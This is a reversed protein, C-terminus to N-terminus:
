LASSSCESRFLTERRGDSVRMSYDTRVVKATAVDDLYLLAASEWPRYICHSIPSKCARPFRRLVSRTTSGLRRSVTKCLIIIAESWRRYAGVFYDLLIYRYRRVATVIFLESWRRASFSPTLRRSVVSARYREDATGNAYRRRAGSRNDDQM